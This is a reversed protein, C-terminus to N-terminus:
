NNYTILQVSTVWYLDKPSGLAALGLWKNDNDM